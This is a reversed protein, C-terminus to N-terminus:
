TKKEINKISKKTVKKPIIIPVINVIDVIERKKKCLLRQKSWIKERAKRYKKQLDKYKGEELNMKKFDEKFQKIDDEIKEIGKIKTKLIKPCESKKSFKKIIKIKNNQTEKDIWDDELSHKSNCYPCNSNGYRFWQIICDTHYTHKCEPLSYCQESNLNEHCINCLEDKKDINSNFPNITIM